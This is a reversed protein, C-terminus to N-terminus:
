RRGRKRIEQVLEDKEMSLIALAMKAERLERVVDSYVPERALKVELEGVERKLENNEELLQEVSEVSEGPGYDQVRRELDANRQALDENKRKLARNERRLKDLEARNVGGTNTAGVDGDGRGRGGLRAAMIAGLGGSSGTDSNDRSASMEKQSQGSTRRASRGGGAPLADDQQVPPNTARARGGARLSPAKAIASQTPPLPAPPVPDTDVDLDNLDVDLESSRDGEEHPASSQGDSEPDRSGVSPTGRSTGRSKAEGLYTSIFRLIIRGGSSINAAVRKNYSPIEVHDSFDIDTKGIVKGRENNVRVTLKFIKPEFSAGQKKKKFLTVEQSLPEGHFSAVRTSKDIKAPKTSLIKPGREWTVVVDASGMLKDASEIQLEYNFKFAAKNINRVSGAKSILKSSSRKM